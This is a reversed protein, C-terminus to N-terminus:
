EGGLSAWSTDKWSSPCLHPLTASFSSLHYGLFQGLVADKSSVTNIACLYSTLPEAM